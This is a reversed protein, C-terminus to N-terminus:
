DNPNARAWAERLEVRYSDNFHLLSATVRGTPTLGLIENDVARFHGSWLDRRPRFLPVIAGDEPDIGAINPGKYANCRHFAWALNAFDDSGGHQVAVVHEVHFPVFPAAAQPLRRYECCDGARQRVRERLTPEM